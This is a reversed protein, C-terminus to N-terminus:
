GDVKTSTVGVDRFSIWAGANFSAAYIVLPHQIVEQEEKANAGKGITRTIEVERPEYRLFSLIPQPSGVNVEHAHVIIKNDNGDVVEFEQMPQTTWWKPLDYTLEEKAM